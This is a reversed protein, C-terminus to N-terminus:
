NSKFVDPEILILYANRLNFSTKFLTDLIEETNRDHFYNKFVNLIEEIEQCDKLDDGTLDISIVKTKRQSRIKSSNPTNENRFNKITFDEDEEDDYIVKKKKEIYDSGMIKSIQKVDEEIDDDRKRKRILSIEGENKEKKM